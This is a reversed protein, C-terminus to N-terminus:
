IAYEIAKYVTNVCHSNTPLANSVAAWECKDIFKPRNRHFILMLCKSLHMDTERAVKIMLMKDIYFAKWAQNLLLLTSGDRVGIHSIFQVLLALLILQISRFGIRYIGSDICCSYLLMMRANDCLGALLVLVLDPNKRLWAIRNSKDLLISCVLRSDCVNLSM